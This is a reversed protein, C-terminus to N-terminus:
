LGLVRATILRQGAKKVADILVNKRKATQNCFNPAQSATVAQSNAASDLTLFQASPLANQAAQRALSLALTEAPALTVKNPCTDAAKQVTAGNGLVVKALDGLGLAHAPTASLIAAFAATGFKIKMM